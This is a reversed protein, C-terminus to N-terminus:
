VDTIRHVKDDGNSTKSPEPKVHKQYRQRIQKAKKKGFEVLKKDYGTKYLVYGIAGVALLGTNVNEYKGSVVAKANRAIATNADRRRNQKKANKAHADMNQRAAAAEFQERYGPITAMKYNVTGEILKRKTGAGEGYAMYAAAYEYADKQAQRQINKTTSM